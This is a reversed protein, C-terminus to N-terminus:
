RSEYNLFYHQNSTRVKTLHQLKVFGAIQILYNVYNNKLRRMKTQWLIRPIM